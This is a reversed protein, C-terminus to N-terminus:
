ARRRTSQMQTVKQAAAPESPDLLMPEDVTPTGEPDALPARHDEDQNINLPAEDQNFQYDDDHREIVKQLPEPMDPVSKSGRRVVTKIWAQDEFQKWMIGNPQKSIAKIQLIQFKRMVEHHLVRGDRRFIAYAGIMEGPEEDLKTPIHRLVPNLGEEWEFSDNKCVVKGDIIVGFQAARKRIGHVMPQWCALIGGDKEPRPVIVGERGDPLLEDKCAKLIASHLSARNCLLLKPINSVAERAFYMFREPSIHAPLQKTILEARNDLEANFVKFLAIANESM